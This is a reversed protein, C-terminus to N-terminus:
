TIRKDPGLWRFALFSISVGGGIMLAGYVLVETM